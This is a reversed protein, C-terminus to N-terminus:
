QTSLFWLNFTSSVILLPPYDLGIYLGVFNMFLVLYIITGFTHDSFQDSCFMVTASFAVLGIMWKFPNIYIQRTWMSDSPLFSVEHGDLISKRTVNIILRDTRLGSCICKSYQVVKELQHLTPDWLTLNSTYTGADASFKVVFWPITAGVLFHFETIFDVWEWGLSRALNKSKGVSVILSEM